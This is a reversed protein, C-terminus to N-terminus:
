RRVTIAAQNAVALGATHKGIIPRQPDGDVYPNRLNQKNNKIMEVFGGKNNDAGGNKEVEKSLFGNVLNGGNFNTSQDKNNNFSDSLRTKFTQTAESGTNKTGYFPKKVVTTDVERYAVEIVGPRGSEYGM